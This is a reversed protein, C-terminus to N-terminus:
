LHIGGGSVQWGWAELREETECIQSKGGNQLLSM